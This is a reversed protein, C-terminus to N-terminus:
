TMMVLCYAVASVLQDYPITPVTIPNQSFRFHDRHLERGREPMRETDPQDLVCRSVEGQEDRRHRPSTEKENCM